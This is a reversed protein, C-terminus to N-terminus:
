EVVKKPRGGKSSVKGKAIEYAEKADHQEETLAMELQDGMMYLMDKITFTGRAMAKEMVDVIDHLFDDIAWSMTGSPLNNKKCLDQFKQVHEATLTLMVRKKM